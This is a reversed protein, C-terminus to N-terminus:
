LTILTHNILGFRTHNPAAPPSLLSCARRASRRMRRWSV